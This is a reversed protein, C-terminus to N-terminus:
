CSVSLSDNLVVVVPYPTTVWTHFFTHLSASSVEMPPVDFLFKTYVDSSTPSAEGVFLRCGVFLPRKLGELEVVEIITYDYVVYDGGDCPFGLSPVPVDKGNRISVTIVTHRQQDLSLSSSFAYSM